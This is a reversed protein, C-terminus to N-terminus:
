CFGCKKSDIDINITIQIAIYSDYLYLSYVNSLTRAVHRHLVDMPLTSTESKIIFRATPVTSDRLACIRNVACSCSHFVTGTGLIAVPKEEQVFKKHESLSGTAYFSAGFIVHM